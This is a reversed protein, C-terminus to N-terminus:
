EEDGSLFRSINKHGLSAAMDLPTMGAPYKEFDAKLRTRLEGGAAVLVKLMRLHGNEVAEYVPTFGYHDEANV